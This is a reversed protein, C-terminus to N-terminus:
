STLNTVLSGYASTTSAFCTEAAKSNRVKEDWLHQLGPLQIDPLYVRMIAVTVRRLDLMRFKQEPAFIGAKAEREQGLSIIINSFIPECLIDLTDLVHRLWSSFLARLM